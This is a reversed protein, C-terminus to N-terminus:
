PFPVGFWAGMCEIVEWIGGRAHLFGWLGSVRVGGQVGSGRCGRGGSLDLDLELGLELELVEGM